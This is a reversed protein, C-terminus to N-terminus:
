LKLLFLNSGVNGDFVRITNDGTVLGLKKKAKKLRIFGDTSERILHSKDVNNIFVRPSGGFKSGEITLTKNGDFQAATISLEGTVVLNSCDTVDSAQVTAIFPNQNLRDKDAQVFQTNPYVLYGLYMLSQCPAATDPVQHSDCEPPHPLGLAHGLEHGLGGVWRCVRQDSPSTGPHKGLIGLVDGEHLLAVGSTGGTSQGTANVDVYLLYVYDPDNFKAQADAISNFWFYTSPNNGVPNTLFWRTDHTSRKIEVVPDHLKFSKGGL